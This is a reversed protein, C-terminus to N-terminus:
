KRNNVGAAEAGFVGKLFTSLERITSHKYIDTGTVPIDYKEMEAELKLLLVSNGGIDFYSETVGIVEVGLDSGLAKVWIDHIKKELEDNPEEYTRLSGSRNLAKYENTDNAGELLHDSIKLPLSDQSNRMERKNISGVLIHSIRHDLLEDFVQMAQSTSISDFLWNDQVSVGYDVAMGVENWAPWGISLTRKGKLNRDASFSDMFANAATYDASGPMGFTGIVSSCLIFFDMEDEKTLEDIVLTGHIKPMLVNTIKAVSKRLFLGDGAIGASHVIGHVAGYRKRLQELVLRLEDRNAIDASITVVNSGTKEIAQILKIQNCLKKNENQQIIYKWETREPFVSRNVLALNIRNKSALYGAVELGVGGIGGTILYIGDSKLTLKDTPLKNLDCDVLEQLYRKDDRLAVLYPVETSELERYLQESSTSSDIDICRVKLGPNEQLIVKGIGQICAGFPHLVAEKGTVANVTHTVLVVELNRLGGRKALGKMIDLFIFVNKNLETELITEMSSENSQYLPWLYYLKKFKKNSLCDLLESCDPEHSALEFTNPDLQKFKDGLRVETLRHGDAEMCERLGEGVGYQDTFLLIEENAAYESNKPAPFSEESWVTRTYMQERDANRIDAINNISEVKKLCYQDVVAFVKGNVDSMEVRYILEDTSDRELKYIRSIMKQPTRGFIRLSRYSHPLYIGIEGEALRAASNVAVDVLAPHLYYQLLDTAYKNHLEIETVFVGDIHAAQKSCNWRPGYEFTDDNISILDSGVGLSINKYDTFSSFEYTQDEKHIEGKAHELWKGTELSSKSVISFNLQEDWHNLIMHVEREAESNNLTLPKLFEIDIKIKECNFHRCGAERAMEVYAAGPVAFVGMIKHEGAVWQSKASFRAGYITQGKTTLLHSELLPHGLRYGITKSNQMLNVNDPWYRKRKLPTAPITVKRVNMGRYLESWDLEAGSVFFKCVELLLSNDGSQQVARILEFAKKRQEEKQLNDKPYSYAYFIDKDQLKEFRSSCAINIKEKFDAVSRIVVAIRYAHHVRGTNSTYCINHYDLNFSCQSLYDKYANLAIELGEKTEATITLISPQNNVSEGETRLPAEQIVVHCNTGTFGFSNIGATLLNDNGKWERTRDNVFLPSNYFKIYSNPESFNISAPLVGHKISLVVKILSAMGSAAQVHGINGKLSGLSCFQKKKTFEDFASTLGKVEIPDGLKTGTGHAEIYSIMEPNIKAERWASVIVERQADSNPALIGNSQGDNNMAIGKIIAQINDGDALAKNLPKLLVAGVGEGWITGNAKRDFTKVEGTLNEVFSEIAAGSKGPYYDLSIGGAIAMEIKGERLEKCAMYLAVLASSCATDVVLAPGRLNFVYSVRSALIGSWCGAEAELSKKGLLTEYVSNNTHDRGVFLGTKTGQIDDFLMGADEIAGWATELFIRQYPDMAIAEEDTIRFFEAAFLDIERLFGGLKSANASPVETVLHQIDDWREKSIPSICNRGQVLRNWFENLNVANPFRGSIGIIAIDQDHEPAVPKRELKQLMKKAVNKDILKDAFLELIYKRFDEM